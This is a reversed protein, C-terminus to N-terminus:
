HWQARFDPTKSGQIGSKALKEIKNLKSEAEADTITGLLLSIALARAKINAKVNTDTAAVIASIRKEINKDM